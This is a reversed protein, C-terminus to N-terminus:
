LDIKTFQRDEVSTILNERMELVMCFRPGGKRTASPLLPFKSTIVLHSYVFAPSSDILLMYPINTGQHNVMRQYWVGGIIM